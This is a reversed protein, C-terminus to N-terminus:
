DRIMTVVRPVNSDVQTHLLDTWIALEKSSYGPLSTEDLNDCNLKWFADEPEEEFYSSGFFSANVYRPRRGEFSLAGAELLPVDLGQMMRLAHAHALLVREVLHGELRRRGKCRLRHLMTACHHSVSPSGDANKDDFTFEDAGSEFAFIM